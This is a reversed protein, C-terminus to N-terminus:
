PTAIVSLRILDSETFINANSEIFNGLSEGAFDMDGIAKKYTTLSTVVALADKNDRAMLHLTKGITNSSNILELHIDTLSSPVTIKLLAQALETYKQGVSSLRYLDDYSNALIAKDFIAGETGMPYRNKSLEAVLELIYTAVSASGTNTSIKLNSKSYIPVSDVPANDILSTIIEMQKLGDFNGSAKAELYRTTLDLGLNQTLTDGIPTNLGYESDDILDTSLQDDPGAISPDRKLDVEEGDSTGDGDTDPNEKDTKWLAEEWDKLGDKDTDISALSPDINSAVILNKNEAINEISKDTEKNAKTKQYWFSVSVILIAITVAVAKRKTSKTM